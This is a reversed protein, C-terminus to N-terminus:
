RATAHKRGYSRGIRAHPIFPPLAGKEDEKRGSEGVHSFASGGSAFPCLSFCFSFAEPKAAGLYFGWTGHSLLVFEGEEVHNGVGSRNDGSCIQAIIATVPEM